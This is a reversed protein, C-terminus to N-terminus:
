SGGKSSEHELVVYPTLMEMLSMGGHRYVKNASPGQPRNKVRGRLMVTRRQEVYQLEPIELPSAEEPGLIRSRNNELFTLAKEAKFESDYGSNLYAYGHDSTVVIRYGRPISLVVNKWVVDFQKVIAEFHGSSKAEFNMYTGDPFSSWLLLSDGLGQLEHVRITSDYYRAVIGAEKLEKRTELQSPAVRKGILRQEVFSMTDSPLGAVAYRVEAATFGTQGALQLILPLERISSGDLVVLASKPQRAVALLSMSSEAAAVLEDYLQPAGSLILDDAFRAMREGTELYDRPSLGAFREESWVSNRLWGQVGALRGAPRVLISFLDRFSDNM